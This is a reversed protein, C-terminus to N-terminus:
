GTETHDSEDTTSNGVHNRKYIKIEQILNYTLPEEQESEQVDDLHFDLLADLPTTPPDKPIPRTLTRALHLWVDVQEWRDNEKAPPKQQNMSTKYLSVSPKHLNTILKQKNSSYSSRNTSVTRKSSSSSIGRNVPPLSIQSSAITTTSAEIDTSSDSITSSNVKTNTRTTLPLSSSLIALGHYSKKKHSSNKKGLNAQNIQEIDLLHNNVIKTSHQKANTNITLPHLYLRRTLIQATNRSSTHRLDNITQCLELLTLSKPKVSSRATATSTM